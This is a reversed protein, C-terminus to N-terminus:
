TVVIATGTVTVLVAGPLVRHEFRVDVIANTGGSVLRAAELKELAIRRAEVLASPIPSEGGGRYGDFAPIAVYADAAVIGVHRYARRGIISARTSLVVGEPPEPVERTHPAAESIKELLTRM